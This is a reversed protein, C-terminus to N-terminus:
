SDRRFCITSINLTLEDKERIWNAQEDPDWCKLFRTTFSAENDLHMPMQMWLPRVDPDHMVASVYDATATWEAEQDLWFVTQPLRGRERAIRMVLQYVVTSDKGGSMGVVINPFEDFLFNIRELTADFVNRDSLIKMKRFVLGPSRLQPWGRPNSSLNATTGGTVNSDKAFYGIVGM